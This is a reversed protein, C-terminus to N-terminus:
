GLGTKIMMSRLSDKGGAALIHEDPQFVYEADTIPVVTNGEKGAIINVGYHGRVNLDRLKKGVWKEPVAIEYIAYEPSLEFYDFAGRSSFRAAARYAMDREPYIVEDAGIKLLFKAQIESSTKAVVCAAGLEKLLSTIELSSQFNDGICVFCVDFNKAGLNRLVEEDMCNAIQASTVFPAIRNVAEEEADVIMVENGLETLRRALSSGFHGLGIVLMSRM